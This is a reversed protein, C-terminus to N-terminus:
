YLTSAGVYKLVPTLSFSAHGFPETWVRHVKQEKLVNNKYAYIKFQNWQDSPVKAGYYTDPAFTDVLLTIVSNATM